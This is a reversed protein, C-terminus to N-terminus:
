YSKTHKGRGSGLRTWVLASMFVSSTEASPIPSVPPEPTWPWDDLAASCSQPWGWTVPSMTMLSWSLFPPSPFPYSPLPFLIGSRTLQANPGSIARPQPNEHLKLTRMGPCSAEISPTRISSFMAQLGRTWTEVARQKGMKSQWMLIRWNKYLSLFPLLDYKHISFIVSLISCAFGMVSVHIRNSSHSSGRM